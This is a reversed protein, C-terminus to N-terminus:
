AGNNVPDNWEFLVENNVNTTTVVTPPEPKFGCYLEIEDSYASYSYSNRAEVRLKYTVSFTLGTATYSTPLVGSAIVEYDGGVVGLSIRYDDIM